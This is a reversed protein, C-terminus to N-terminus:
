VDVHARWVCVCVCVGRARAFWSFVVIVVCVRCIVLVRSVDRAIVFVCRVGRARCVCWSCLACVVLVLCVSRACPM